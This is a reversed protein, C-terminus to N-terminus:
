LRLTYGPVFRNSDNSLVRFAADLNRLCEPQLIWGLIAFVRKEGVFLQVRYCDGHVRCQPCRNLRAYLQQLQVLQRVWIM